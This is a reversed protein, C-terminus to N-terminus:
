YNDNVLRRARGDSCLVPLHFIIMGVFWLWVQGLTLQLNWLVRGCLFSIRWYSLGMLAVVIGVPIAVSPLIWAMKMLM